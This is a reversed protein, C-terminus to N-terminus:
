RKRASFIAYEIYAHKGLAHLLHANEEETLNYRAKYLENLPYSFQTLNQIDFGAQQFHTKTESWTAWYSNPRYLKESINKTTFVKQFKSQQQIDSVGCWYNIFYGNDQLSHFINNLIAMQDHKENYHLVYRMIGIDYKNSSRFQRLDAIISVDCSTNQKLLEENVDICDITMSSNVRGEKRLYDTVEGSAGGFDALSIKEEKNKKISHISHDFNQLILPLGTKYVNFLEQSTKSSELTALWRNGINISKTKM